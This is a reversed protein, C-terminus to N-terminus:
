GRMAPFYPGYRSSTATVRSGSVRLDDAQCTVFYKLASLGKAYEREAAVRRDDDRKTWEKLLAGEVLVWHFDEPLLPEDTPNVMDSINRVYDVLYGSDDAPLPHLQIALYRQATQGAPITSLRSEPAVTNQYLSVDGGAVASLNFKTVEKWNDTIPQVPTVGALTIQVAQRLGSESVGELFVIGTDTPSTSAVVVQCPLISPQREVPQYGHVIYSDPTGSATLQPDRARIEQLTCLALKGQVSTIGEIRTVTSPLGLVFKSVTSDPTHFRVAYDRLTGMGPLGLIQRHTINLFSTLRTTETSNPVAPLALRRYLEALLEKLTM